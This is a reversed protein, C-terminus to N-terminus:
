QVTGFFHEITENELKCFSCLPSSIQKMKYLKYNLNLINNLVKFQFQRYRVDNTISFIFTRALSLETDTVDYRSKLRFTSLPREYKEAVLVDYFQKSRIRNFQLM